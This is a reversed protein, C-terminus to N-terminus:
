IAVKFVIFSKKLYPNYIMGFTVPIHLFDSLRINKTGKIGLNCVEFRNSSILYWASSGKAAGAFANFEFEGIHFPYSVEFYFSNDGPLDNHINTSAFVSIPFSSPVSYTIGAEITHAGKGKGSFDSFPIKMFPFYYDILSLSFHGVPTHRTYTLIFNSETYNGRIGFSGWLTFAIYNENNIDYKLTAYPQIQPAAESTPTIGSELGRWVARSVFSIGYNLSLPKRVSDAAVGQQEANTRNNLLLICILIILLFKLNKM